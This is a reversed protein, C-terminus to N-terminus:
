FSCCFVTLAANDLLFDHSRLLLTLSVSLLLPYKFDMMWSFYRLSFHISAFIIPVQLSMSALMWVIKQRCMEQGIERGKIATTTWRSFLKSKHVSIDLLWCTAPRRKRRGFDTMQNTTTVRERTKSGAHGPLWPMSQRWFLPNNDSLCHICLGVVDWNAKWTNTPVTTSAEAPSRQCTKIFM